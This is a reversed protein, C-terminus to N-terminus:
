HSPADVRRPEVFHPLSGGGLQVWAFEAHGYRKERTVKTGYIVLWFFLHSKACVM